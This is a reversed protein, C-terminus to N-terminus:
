SEMLRPNANRESRAIVKSASTRQITGGYSVIRRWGNLEHLWSFLSLLQPWCGSRAIDDFGEVGLWTGRHGCRAGKNRISKKKRM